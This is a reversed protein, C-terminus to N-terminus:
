RNRQACWSGGLRTPTPNTESPKGHTAWRTHGIGLNGSFEEGDTKCELERLKRVSRRLVVKGEHFIAIGASDYRRYELRRLGELLVEKTNRHGIYGIIGCM